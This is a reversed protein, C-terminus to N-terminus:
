GQGKGYAVLRAVMASMQTVTTIEPSAANAAGSADRVMLKGASEDYELFRGQEPGAIVTLITGNKGFGMGQPDLAWGGSPYSNDLTVDVVRIGIDGMSGRGKISYALAM